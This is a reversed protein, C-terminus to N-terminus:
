SVVGKWESHYTPFKFKSNNFSGREFSYSFYVFFDAEGNLIPSIIIELSLIYDQFFLFAHHLLQKKYVFLTFNLLCKEVIIPIIALIPDIKFKCM